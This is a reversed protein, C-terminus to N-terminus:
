ERCKKEVISNIQKLLHELEKSNDVFFDAKEKCYDLRQSSKGSMEFEEQKRFQDLTLFEEGERRREQLRQFRIKIHADVFILKFDSFTKLYDVEKPKRISSIALNEKKKQNIAIRALADEGKEEKLQNGFNRLSDRGLTIGRKKAQKRILDSLSIHQFGKEELYKAATDKGAGLTGSIGIIM